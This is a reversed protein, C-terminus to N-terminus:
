MITRSYSLARIFDIVSLGVPDVMWEDLLAAIMSVSVRKSVLLEAGAVVGISNVGTAIHRSLKAQEPQLMSGVVGVRKLSMSKVHQPRLKKIIILTVQEPRLTETVDVTSANYGQLNFPRVRPSSSIM